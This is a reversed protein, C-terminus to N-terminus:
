RELEAVMSKAWSDAQAQASPPEPGAFGEAPIEDGPSADKCRDLCFRGTMMAEHRSSACAELCKDFAGCLPCDGARVQLFSPPRLGLTQAEKEAAQLDCHQQQACGYIGM